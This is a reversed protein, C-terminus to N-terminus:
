VEVKVVKNLWFVGVTMTVVLILLLGWGIPDQWLPNLYTPRALLMYLGFVVPLCGLIWASLRGEASLVRVQRRLRERERLTAAVNTLVEALNGGVERQIRIAMVTWSFDVSQMREAVGDLADEIPVGLRAEVIAKGFESTMPESGERVVTDLAQPVSYGASLSGAILQLTDPLQELFKRKRQREKFVLYVYPGIIAVALVIILLTINGGSILFALLPALLVIAVHIIVWEAAKLPVGGAELKRTLRAEFDKKAVVRGALEMASRAVASHGLVTSEPAEQKKRATRGTLTYISLRRRIGGDRDGRKVSTVAVGLLIALAVFIGALAGILAWSSQFPGVHIHVPVPGAAQPATTPLSSLVFVASDGVVTGAAQGSVAVVAQSGRLRDPVTATVIVQNAIENAASKFATAIDGAQAATFLQGGGASSLRGLAATSAPGSATTGFAVADLSAKSTAVAQAAADLSVKSGDDTGDTLVIINRSGTAGVQQVALAVGDYLATNGSAALGDILSGLQARNTTPPTLVTATTSVDVLGVAVDPPLANLFDHAAAKAGAIGAGVMSGSTDIVLEATRTVQGNDRVPAATAALQQGNVSLHVSSLDISQGPTLGPVSFVVQIKQAQQTIQVIRGSTAAAAPAAAWVSLAAAVLAGLALARGKLGGM